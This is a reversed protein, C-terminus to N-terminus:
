PKRTTRFLMAGAIGVLAGVLTFAPIRWGTFGDVWHGLLTFAAVCGAMTLGIGSYRMYDRAGAPILPRRPASM